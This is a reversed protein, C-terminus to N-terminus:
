AADPFKTHLLVKLASKGQRMAESITAFRRESRAVAKAKGAAWIEWRWPQDTYDRRKVALYYDRPELETGDSM